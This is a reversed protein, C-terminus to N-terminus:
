APRPAASRPACARAAPASSSSTTPTISSRTPAPRQRGAGPQRATPRARAMRRSLGGFSAAEAGRLRLGRRRRDRLVHQADAPRDQTGEGHVYDEIISRCASGCTSARRSSSCCCRCRSWRIAGADGQGDRPRRRGPQAILWILFSSSSWTPSATVRQRWFHDAGEKASGLGRVNKLPTRMTM